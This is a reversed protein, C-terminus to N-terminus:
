NKKSELRIREFEKKFELEIETARKEGVGKIRKAVNRIMRAATMWGLTIGEDMAEQLRKHQTLKSADVSFSTSQKRLVENQKLRRRTERNM